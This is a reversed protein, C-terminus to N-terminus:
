DVRAAGALQRLSGADIRAVAEAKTLPFDPEEAMAVAIRVAALPSRRGIRTQLIYLTGASVTFEVDCLDRYHRELTRLAECLEAYVDPLQRRLADLGSVAHTGAV